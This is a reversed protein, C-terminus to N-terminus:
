ASEGLRRRPAAAARQAACQGLAETRRRAARATPAAAAARARAARATACARPRSAHPRRAAGHFHSRSDGRDRVRPRWADCRHGGGTPDVVRGSSRPTPRRRTAPGRAHGPGAHRRGLVRAVARTATRRSWVHAHAAHRTRAPNAPASSSTTSARRHAVATDGAVVVDTRRGPAPRALRPRRRHQRRHLRRPRAVDGRHTTLRLDPTIAARAAGGADRAVLAASRGSARRRPDETM